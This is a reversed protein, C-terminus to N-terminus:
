LEISIRRASPLPLSLYKEGEIETSMDSTNREDFTVNM